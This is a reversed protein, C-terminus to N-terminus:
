SISVSSPIMKAPARPRGTAGLPPCFRVDSGGQFKALSIATRATVSTAPKAAQRSAEKTGHCHPSRREGERERRSIQTSRNQREAARGSQPDARLQPETLAQRRVNVCEMLCGVHWIHHVSLGFCTNVCEFTQIFVLYGHMEYVRSLDMSRGPNRRRNADHATSV